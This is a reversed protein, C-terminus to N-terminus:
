IWGARTDIDSPRGYRAGRKLPTTEDETGFGARRVVENGWGKQSGRQDILEGFRVKMDKLKLPINEEGGLCGAIANRELSASKTTTMLQIFGGDCAPVGNSHLAWLGLASFPFAIALSLFYPLILNIPSSFSHVSVLTEITVNTTTNWLGYESIVSLTVNALLENLLDETVTFSIMPPSYSDEKVEYRINDNLKSDAIYTRSPGIASPSSRSYHSRLHPVDKGTVVLHKTQNNYTNQGVLSSWAGGLYWLMGGYGSLPVPGRFGPVVFLTNYQGALSTGVVSAINILNLDRYRQRGTDTWNIFTTANYESTISSSNHKPTLSSANYKPSSSSTNYRPLLTSGNFNRVIEIGRAGHFLAEDLPVALTPTSLNTNQINNQYSNHLVYQTRHPVCTLNQQTAILTGVGAKKSTAIPSWSSAYFYFQSSPDNDLPHFYTGNYVATPHM